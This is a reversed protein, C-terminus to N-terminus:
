FFLRSSRDGRPKQAFSGSGCAQEKELGGRRPRLRCAQDDGFGVVSIRDGPWGNEMMYRKVKNARAESLEVNSPYKHTSIEREDAHGEIWAESLPFRSILESLKEVKLYDSDHLSDQATDFYFTLRQEGYDRITEEITREEVPRPPLTDRLEGQFWVQVGQSGNAAVIDPKGDGSVDAVKVAYYIDSEPLGTRKLRWGGGRKNYYIAMGRRDFSAAIIDTWGDGDFDAVDIGWYSGRDTLRTPGRWNGRGNGYWVRVGKRYSGAVIDLHGDKDFDAVEVGWFSGSATPGRGQYWEGRGNGYWVNVGGHNGWATAVLDLRGDGDLDGAAVDKYVDSVEPGYEITWNGKGDGFWVQVGGETDQTSNAAAIDMHGDNNFDATIVGEYSGNDKPFRSEERSVWGGRCDALWVQVGKLDGWSSSVIDAWGDENFDAVDLSRIDGLQTPNDIEVWSGNGHGLWVRIGRNPNFSGGIIDVYGDNNLDGTTVAYYNGGDPPGSEPAWQVYKIGPACALTVMLGTLLYKM